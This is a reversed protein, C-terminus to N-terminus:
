QQLTLSLRKKSSSRDMLRANHKRPTNYVIAPRVIEAFTARDKEFNSKIEAM